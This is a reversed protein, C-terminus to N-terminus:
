EPREQLFSEIYIALHDTARYMHITSDFLKTLMMAGEVTSIMISAVTEPDTGGRVTGLEEGRTVTRVIFRRWDDCAKQARERLAPNNDDTGVATNLVPCGGRLIPNDVVGRFLYIFALLRERTDRKGKVLEAFRGEYLSVAYDFAEVALAEKSVFHNYIGGKTLRTAQLVDDMSAGYFGRLNFVQAAQEIIVQRTHEGKSM